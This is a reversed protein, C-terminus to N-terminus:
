TTAPSYQSWYNTSAEALAVMGEALHSLQENPDVQKAKMALAKAQHLLEKRKQNELEDRLKALHLSLFGCLCQIHEYNPKKGFYQEVESLVEESSAESLIKQYSEIDGQQLYSRAFDLWLPLSAAESILVNLVEQPDDPLKSVPVIVVEESEQVPICLRETPDSNADM